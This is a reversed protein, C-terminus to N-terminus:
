WTLSLTGHWCFAPTSPLSNSVPVRRVLLPPLPLSPELLGAQGQSSVGALFTGRVRQTELNAGWGSWPPQVQSDRIGFPIASCPSCLSTLLHSQSEAPSAEGQTGQSSLLPASPKPWLSSNPQHPFATALLSSPTSPPIPPPPTTCCSSELSNFWRGSTQSARPEAPEFPPPRRGQSSLLAPGQVVWGPGSFVLQHRSGPRGSSDQGGQGCVTAHLLILDPDYRHEVVYFGYLRLCTRSRVSPTEGRYFPSQAMKDWADSHRFCKGNPSRHSLTHHPKPAGAHTHLALEQM